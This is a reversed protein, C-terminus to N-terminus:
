QARHHKTRMRLATLPGARLAARHYAGRGDRLIARARLKGGDKSVRGRAGEPHPRRSNLVMGIAAANPELRQWPPKRRTNFRRIESRLVPARSPSVGIAGGFGLSFSYSSM